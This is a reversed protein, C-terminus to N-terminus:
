IHLGLAPIAVSGVRVWRVRLVKDLYDSGNGRYESGMSVAEERGVRWEYSGQLDM